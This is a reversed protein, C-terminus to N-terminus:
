GIVPLIHKCVDLFPRTLIEGDESKVHKVGELAPTFVSGEMKYKVADFLVHKSLVLNM